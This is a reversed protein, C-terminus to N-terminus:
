PLFLAASDAPTTLSVLERPGDSGDMVEPTLKVRELLNHPPVPPLRLAM